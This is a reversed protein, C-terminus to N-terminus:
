TIRIEDFTDLWTALNAAIETRPLLENLLSVDSPHLAYEFAPDLTVGTRVPFMWQNTAILSQVTENLCYDIFLKALEPNPGNKVLGMGEVQMWAYHDGDHYIPAIGTEPEGGYFYVSYAGDTGYSNMIHKSPSDYWVSWAETWGPQVDIYENVDTWWDTWNVHLLKEHVTIETLLFALGPSSFKPDETVFGSAMAPSALDAFTLNNLEPFLDYSSNKYILTVLGFDFPVVYHDPDLADIFTSNVVDLNSPEYPTLLDTVGSQLILINDIGIVVDAVPNSKETGLRSIIGNADTQLREITVNCDYRDEFAGFAREIITDPDDGWKMFSDYTYVLLTPRETTPPTSIIVISAIAIVIVVALGLVVLSPDRREPYESM